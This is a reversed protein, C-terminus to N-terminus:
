VRCAVGRVLELQGVGEGYGQSGLTHGPVRGAGRLQGLATKRGSSQGPGGGHAKETAVGNWLTVCRTLLQKRNRENGLIEHAQGEEESMFLNAPVVESLESRGGPPGAVTALAKPWRESGQLTLVM